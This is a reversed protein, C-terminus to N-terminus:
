CERVDSGNFVMKAAIVRTVLFFVRWRYDVGYVFADGFCLQWQPCCLSRNECVVPLLWPLRRLFTFIVKGEIEHSVASVLLVLCVEIVSVVKPLRVPLLSCVGHFLQM